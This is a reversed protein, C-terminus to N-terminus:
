IESVSIKLIREVKTSVAFRQSTRKNIIWAIHRSDTFILQQKKEHLPLKLSIFYDSLLKSGKMGFPQFKDGQQWTRITLPFSLKEYALFAFNPNQLDKKDPFSNIIEFNFEAKNVTVKGSIDSVSVSVPELSKNTVLFWDERDIFLTHTETLFSASPPATLAGEIQRWTCGYPKLLAETVALSHPHSKLVEANIKVANREDLWVEKKVSEVLINWAFEAAKLRLITRQFTHELNPNLIKLKPIVEHRIMNRAYDTSANSSDERWQISQKMAYTDIESRTTFLLPRILLNKKAAIGTLGAIGTGRTLNLLATEVNDNAHHATLLYSFSNESLIDEFWDYRLERAAMQTSIGNEKAHRKTDFTTTFFPISRQECYTEVFSEDGDSDNGRLKFNVHAVGINFKGRQLLDLVVMSDKGGSVAILLKDASSFLKEDNIYTLFANLM